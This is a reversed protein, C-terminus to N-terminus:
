ERQGEDADHEADQPKLVHQGEWTDKRERQREHGALRGRVEEMGGVDAGGHEVGPDQEVPRTRQGM